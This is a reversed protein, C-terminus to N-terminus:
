ALFVKLRERVEELLAEATEPVNDLASAETACLSGDEHEALTEGAKLAEPNPIARHFVLESSSEPQITVRSIKASDIRRNSWRTWGNEGFVVNLPVGDYFTREYPAGTITRLDVSTGSAADFLVQRNVISPGAEITSRALM